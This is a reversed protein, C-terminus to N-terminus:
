EVCNVDLRCTLYLRLCLRKRAFERLKSDFFFRLSRILKSRNRLAMKLACILPSFWDFSTWNWGSQYIITAFFSKEERGSSSSSSISHIFGCCWCCGNSFCFVACYVGCFEGGGGMWQARACWFACSIMKFEHNQNQGKMPECGNTEWFMLKMRVFRRRAANMKMMMMMMQENSMESHALYLRLRSRSTSHLFESGRSVWTFCMWQTRHRTWKM